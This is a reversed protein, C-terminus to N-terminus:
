SPLLAAQFARHHKYAWMGILCPTVYVKRESFQYPEIENRKIAAAITGSRVGLAEDAASPTMKQLLDNYIAAWYSPNDIEHGGDQIITNPM